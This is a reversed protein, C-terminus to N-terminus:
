QLDLTQQTRLPLYTFAISAESIRDVRYEGLKPGAAISILEDGQM